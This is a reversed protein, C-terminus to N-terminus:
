IFIFCKKKLRIELKDALFRVFFFNSSPYFPFVAYKDLIKLRLKAIKKLKGDFFEQSTKLTTEKTKMTYSNFFIIIKDDKIQM